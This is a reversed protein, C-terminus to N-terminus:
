EGKSFEKTARIARKWGSILHTRETSELLPSFTKSTEPISLIEEKNKILGCTLGALLSVGLATAEANEPVLVEIDSINAQFQMLLSNKSAGGDAKLKEIAIGSDASMASILDNTQYAISELAARIIHNENSGRTLGFITGKVYMDWYPAGLGAFAPVIYVGESSLVKKAKEESEPATKILGLEDRLWQIVAGGIFVSGELAYQIKESELTAAITTVLGNNSSVAKEGTNMLLFCGTGYTNKIDGAFFCKQGFLAAQQDGAVSCVPLEEGMININGFNHGSPYVSPLICEPIDLESLLKKDWCLKHIDYIMTRSANTYDTAHIKGNSLKWMLWTDITGFLIDGKEAKERVGKVNDLIWKIKTASFYADLKLGTTESIYNELGKAKLEECIDATRRCQWVIANYIPEGTNKDWLVTTERQNTIGVAAIESPNIGARIIAQTACSYQASLIETADHEVFSPAPYIQTFENQAVSIVKGKKDFIIARASTTGEDLTLIYKKM